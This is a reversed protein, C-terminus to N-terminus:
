GTPEVVLVRLLGLFLLLTTFVSGDNVLSTEDQLNMDMERKQWNSFFGDLITLVKGMKM